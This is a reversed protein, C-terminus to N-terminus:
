TLWRTIMLHYIHLKTKRDLQDFVVSLFFLFPKPGQHCFGDAAGSTFGDVGARSPHCLPHCLEWVAQAM